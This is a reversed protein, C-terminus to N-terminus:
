ENYEPSQSFLYRVKDWDGTTDYLEQINKLAQERAWSDHWKNAALVLDNPIPPLRRTPAQQRAAEFTPKYLHAIYVVTACVVLTVLVIAIASM